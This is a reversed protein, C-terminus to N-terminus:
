LFAPVAEHLEAIESVYEVLQAMNTIEPIEEMAKATGENTGSWHPGFARLEIDLKEKALEQTRRLADKQEEFSGEFEGTKDTAKRNRYGHNWFEILGSKHLHKIWNFYAQNDEEM